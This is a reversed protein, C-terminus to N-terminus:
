DPDSWSVRYIIKMTYDETKEVEEPLNNITTIVPNIYNYSVINPQNAYFTIGSLNNGFGGIRMMNFIMKPNNSKVYTYVGRVNWTNLNSYNDYYSNSGQDLYDGKINLISGEQILPRIVLTIGGVGAGANDDERVVSAGRIYLTKNKDFFYTRQPFRSDGNVVDIFDGGDKNKIKVWSEDAFSYMWLVNNLDRTFLYDDCVFIRTMDKCYLHYLCFKVDTTNEVKIVESGSLDTKIKWVYIYENPLWVDNDTESIRWPKFIQYLYNETAFLRNTYYCSAYIRKYRPVYADIMQQRTTIYSNQLEQRIEDPLM